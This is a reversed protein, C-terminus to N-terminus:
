PRWCSDALGSLLAPGIIQRIGWRWSAPKDRDRVAGARAAFRLVIDESIGRRVVLPLTDSEDPLLQIWGGDFGKGDALEDLARGLIERTELSRGLASSVAYLISLYKAKRRSNVPASTWAPKSSVRM